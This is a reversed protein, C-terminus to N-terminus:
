AAEDDSEDEGVLEALLDDGGDGAEEAEIAAIADRIAQSGRLGKLFAKTTVRKKEAVEQIRALAAAVTLGQIRAFARVVISTGGVREGGAVRALSWDASGSAYHDAIRKMAEFKELPTAAKGTETDRSKAAADAIRQVFGHLAARHQVDPHTATVDLSFEGAGVVNFTIVAQDESVKHTIVSNSRLKSQM